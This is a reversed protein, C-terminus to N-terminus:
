QGGTQQNQALFRASDKSLASEIARDGAELLERAREGTEAGGGEASGGASEPQGPQSRERPDRERTNM